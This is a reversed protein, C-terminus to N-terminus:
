TLTSTVRSPLTLSITVGDKSLIPFGFADRTKRNVGDCANAITKRQEANLSGEQEGQMHNYVDLMEVKEGISHEFVCRCLEAENTSATLPCVLDYFCIIDKDSLYFLPSRINGVLMNYFGILTNTKAQIERKTNIFEQFGDDSGFTIHKPTYHEGYSNLYSYVPTFDMFINQLATETRNLWDHFHEQLKKMGEEGAETAETFMSDTPMYLKPMLMKRTNPVSMSVGFPMKVDIVGPENEIAERERAEEKEKREAKVEEEVEDYAESFWTLMDAGEQVLADIKHIATKPSVKLRM